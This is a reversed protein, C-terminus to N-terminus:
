TNGVIRQEGGNYSGDLTSLLIWKRSYSSSKPKDADIVKM